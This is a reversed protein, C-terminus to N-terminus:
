GFNFSLVFVFRFLYNAIFLIITTSALGPHTCGLCATHPITTFKIRTTLLVLLRIFAHPERIRYINNSLSHIAQKTRYSNNDSDAVLSRTEKQSSKNEINKKEQNTKAM